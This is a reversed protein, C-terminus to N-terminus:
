ASGVTSRGYYKALLGVVQRESARVCKVEIGLKQSLEAASASTPDIMAVVLHGEHQRLPVAKLKWAMETPVYDLAQTDIGIEDLDLIQDPAGTGLQSYWASWIHEPECFGLTVAIEGFRRPWSQQEALVEYIDHESLKGLGQLLQGIRQSM